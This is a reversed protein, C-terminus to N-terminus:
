VPCEKGVRREESRGGWVLDGVIAEVDRGSARKVVSTAGSVKGFKALSGEPLKLKLKTNQHSMSQLAGLCGALCERLM